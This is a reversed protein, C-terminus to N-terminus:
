FEEMQVGMQSCLQLQGGRAHALASVKELRHAYSAIFSADIGKRGWVDACHLIFTSRTLLNSRVGKINYTALRDKTTCCVSRRMFGGVEAVVEEGEEGVDAATAKGM